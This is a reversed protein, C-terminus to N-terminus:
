AYTWHYGGAVGGTKIAVSIKGKAIGNQREAEIGSAYVQGTEKCMVGRKKRDWAVNNDGPDATGKNSDASDTQAAAGEGNMMQMEANELAEQKKKEEQEAIWEVSEKYAEESDIFLGCTQFALKPAIKESALM